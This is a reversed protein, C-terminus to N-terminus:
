NSPAPSPDHLYLLPAQGEFVLSQESSFCINRVLGREASQYSRRGMESVSFNIGNGSISKSIITM